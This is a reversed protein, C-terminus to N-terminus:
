HAPEPTELLAQDFEAKIGQLLSADAFRRNVFIVNFQDPEYECDRLFPFYGLRRLQEDIQRFNSQNDWLAESEVETFVAASSNLTQTGGNIVMDLAGEADIWLVPTHTIPDPLAAAAIYEKILSDLTTGPVTVARTQTRGAATRVSNNGRIFGTKQDHETNSLQLTCPEDKDIVAAHHYIIGQALLEDKFAAFNYPNAEVALVTRNQDQQRFRRSFEARFAGIEIANSISMREILSFFVTVLAHHSHRKYPKGFKKLGVSHQETSSASFQEFRQIDFKDTM